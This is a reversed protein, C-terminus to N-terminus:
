TLNFLSPEPSNIVVKSGLEPHTFSISTAHLMLRGFHDNITKQYDSILKTYLPDGVIPFGLHSLHCRIQHTYGSHPVIEIKSINRSDQQEFKFFDSMSKKGNENYVTRHRRDGNIKIPLVFNLKEWDPINHTLAIYKKYVLRNMFQNNLKQHTIKSRAFIIVGSTEKDLRHVTWVKDYLKDLETKLNQLDPIYGDPITLLGSPKNVVIIFADQFLILDQNFPMM